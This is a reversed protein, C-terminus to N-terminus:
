SYISRVRRRLLLVYVLLIYIAEILLKLLFAGIAPEKGTRYTMWIVVLGILVNLLLYRGYPLDVKWVKRGVFFTLTFTLITSIVFSWAAGLAGLRPILVLNLGVGAIAATGTLWPVWATREFYFLPNVALFYYGNILFGFIGKKGSFLM